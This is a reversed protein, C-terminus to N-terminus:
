FCFELLGLGCVVVWGFRFASAWVFVVFLCCGLVCFYGYGIFGELLMFVGVVSLDDLCVFGFELASM